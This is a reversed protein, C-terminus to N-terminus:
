LQLDRDSFHRSKQILANLEDGTEDGVWSIRDLLQLAEAESIEKDVHAVEPRLGLRDALSKILAFDNEDRIEITIIADYPPFARDRTLLYLIILEHFFVM